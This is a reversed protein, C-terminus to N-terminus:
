GLSTLAPHQKLRLQLILRMVMQELLDATRKFDDGSKTIPDPVNWDEVYMQAGPLKQGSMNVILDFSNADVEDLGKPFHESIDINRDQMARISFPDVRNIPYVGASEAWMVDSGYHQALGLAMPSRCSNGICLFLVKIKRAPTAAAKNGAAPAPVKAFVPEPRAPPPEPVAAVQSSTLRQFVKKLM